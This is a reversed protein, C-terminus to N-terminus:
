NQTCGNHVSCGGIVKARDLPLRGDRYGWDHSTPLTTADLLDAPWREAAAPGYDPGAEIVLVDRGAAALRGAVVAGATGGGVIAVEAEVPADYDAGSAMSM